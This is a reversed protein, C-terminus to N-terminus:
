GIAHEIGGKERETETNRGTERELLITKSIILYHPNKTTTM